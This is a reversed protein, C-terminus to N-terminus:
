IWGLEQGMQVISGAAVAHHLIGSNLAPYNGVAEALQNGLRSTVEVECIEQGTTVHAGDSPLWRTIVVKHASSYGVKVPIKM